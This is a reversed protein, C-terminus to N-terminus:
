RPQELSRAEIEDMLRLFEPPAEIGRAATRLATPSFDVGRAKSLWKKFDNPTTGKRAERMRTHEDHLDAWSSAGPVVREVPLYEIIDSASFGFPTIRSAFGADLATGLWTRIWESEHDPKRGGLDRLPLGDVVAPKAEDVNGLVALEQARNWVELLHSARQLNDVIAFVHARTYKFLVQSNLTHPLKIGGHLPIIEVRAARLRDGLFCELLVEDHEGEVLLIVKPWRLLDSPTLGLHGLAARDALDLEHVLSSRGHSGGARQVEIVHADRSDLLEPSHTATIIIQRPDETLRVLAAAMQAEAARHLAAEPEDILTVFPRLAVAPPVDHRRRSYLAYNIARTAWQLEARSLQELGLSDRGFRWDVAPGAFRREPPPVVLSVIPADPLVGALFRDACEALAAAAKAVRSEILGDDDIGPEAPSYARDAIYQTTMARVDADVDLVDLGFDIRGSLHQGALLEAHVLHAAYPAFRRSSVRRARGRAAPDYGGPSFLARDAVADRWEEWWDDFMDDDDPSNAEYFEHTEVLQAHVRAAAPATLDAVAWADWAPNTATGTPVLLFLRSERLEATLDPDADGALGTIFEDVIRTADAPGLAIEDAAMGEEVPHAGPSYMIMSQALAVMFPRSDGSFRSWDGSISPEARVIMGIEVDDRVGLLAARMGRLLRTKGAGNLGYLVTLGERLPLFDGELLTDGTVEFGLIPTPLDHTTM